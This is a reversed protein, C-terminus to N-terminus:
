RVDLCSKANLVSLLLTEVDRDLSPWWFLSRAVSKMRLMGIHSSHLEELLPRRVVDPVTTRHGRVLCDAEITLENCCRHYPKLSENFLSSWGHAIFDIVRSVDPDQTSM